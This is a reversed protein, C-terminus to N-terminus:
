KCLPIGSVEILFLSVIISLIQAKRQVRIYVDSEPEFRVLLSASFQMM